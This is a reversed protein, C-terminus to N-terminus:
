AGDGLTVAYDVIVPAHDSFVPERPIAVGRATAALGPTALHYDLRWGVNKQRAGARYTWWSYIATDPGLRARVVDVLGLALFDTLWTREEPLFGSTKRNQTPRALDIERHAINMDGMLLLERGSALREQVWARFATLFDMKVAQRVDGTTGSPVYVSVLDFGPYRALLVRGEADHDHQGIELSVEEPAVRAFLGVGSYGARTGCNWCAHFGDMPDPVDDPGARVEQFAIADLDQGALWGLLGKRTAARIGNVNMTAIRMASPYGDVHSPGFGGM